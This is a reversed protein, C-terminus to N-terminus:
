SRDERRCLARGGAKNAGSAPSRPRARRGGAGAGAHRRASAVVADVSTIGVAVLGAETKHVIGEVLCKLVIPFGIAEAAAVAEDITSALREVPGAIGYPALIDRAEQESPAQGSLRALKSGASSRAADGNPLAPTRVPGAAWEAYRGLARFGEETGRLYAVGAEQAAGALDPYIEGSLNSVAVLPLGVQKAGAAVATLLRSYRGAQQPGLGRPADQLLVLSGIEDHAGLVRACGRAVEPDYLGAWTLDLPNAINAFRPLLKTLEVEVPAAAPLKVSAQEAADLALAIEGGSLSLM